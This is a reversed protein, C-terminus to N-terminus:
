EALTIKIIKIKTMEQEVFARKIAMTPEKRKSNSTRYRGYYTEGNYKFGYSAIDIAISKRIVEKLKDESEYMIFTKRAEDSMIKGEFEATYFVKSKTENFTIKSM